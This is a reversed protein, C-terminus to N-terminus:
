SVLEAISRKAEKKQAEQNKRDEEERVLAEVHWRERNALDDKAVKWDREDPVVGPLYDWKVAQKTDHQPHSAHYVPECFPSMTHDHSGLNLTIEVSGPPQLIGVVVGSFLKKNNPIFVHVTTGIVPTPAIYHCHYWRKDVVPKNRSRSIRQSAESLLEDFQAWQSGDGGHVLPTVKRWTERGLSQLEEINDCERAREFVNAYIDDLPNAAKAM